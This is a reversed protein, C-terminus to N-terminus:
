AVSNIEVLKVRVIKFGREKKLKKWDDDYVHELEMILERRTIRIYDMNLIPPMKFPFMKLIWGDYKKAM